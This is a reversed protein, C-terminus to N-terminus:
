DAPDTVSAVGGQAHNTNSETSTKKTLLLVRGYRSAKLAYSLGAIGSGLVLVDCTKRDTM